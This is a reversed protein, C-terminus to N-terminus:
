GENADWPDRIVSENRLRQIEAALEPDTGLRQPLSAAGPALVTLGALRAVVAQEQDYTFIADASARVAVALHIADQSRLGRGRDPASTLDDREIDLLVLPDLIASIAREDIGNRRAAACHLETHLLWSSILMTEPELADLATALAASEAEEVALKM